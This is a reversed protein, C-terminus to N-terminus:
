STPQRQGEEGAVERDFSMDVLSAKYLFHYVTCVFKSYASFEQKIRHGQSHQAYTHAGGPYGQPPPVSTM